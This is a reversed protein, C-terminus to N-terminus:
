FCLSCLVDGKTQEVSTERNHMNQSNLHQVVVKKCNFFVCCNFRSLLSFLLPLPKFFKCFSISHASILSPTATSAVASRGPKKKECELSSLKNSMAIQTSNSVPTPKIRHSSHITTNM